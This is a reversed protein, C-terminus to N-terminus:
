RVALRESIVELKTQIGGLVVEENRMHHEMLDYQRKHLDVCNEAVIKLQLILEHDGQMIDMFKRMDEDARRRYEGNTKSKKYLMVCEIIFKGISIAAFFGMLYVILNIPQSFEPLVFNM